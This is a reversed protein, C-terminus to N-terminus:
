EQDATLILVSSIPSRTVWSVYDKAYEEMEQELMTDICKEPELETVKGRSDYYNFHGGQKEKEDLIIDIHNVKM